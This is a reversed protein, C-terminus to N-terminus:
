QLIIEYRYFSPSLTVARNRRRKEEDLIDLDVQKRALAKCTQDLERKTEPLINLNIDVMGAVEQNTAISFSRHM